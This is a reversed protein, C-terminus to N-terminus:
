EGKLKPNMRANEREENDLDRNRLRSMTPLLLERHAPHPIQAPKLALATEAAHKLPQRQLVFCTSPRKSPRFLQRNPIHLSHPQRNPIVNRASSALSM